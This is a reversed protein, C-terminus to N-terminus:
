PPATQKGAEERLQQPTMELIDFCSPNVREGALDLQRLVEQPMDCTWALVACQSADWAKQVDTRENFRAYGDFVARCRAYVAADLIKPREENLRRADRYVTRVATILQRPVATDFRGTAAAADGLALMLEYSGGWRPLLANALMRDFAPICDMRAAVAREFWDKATGDEDAGGMAISIMEVMPEPRDPHAKAARVLCARAAALHEGFGKWGAETVTNAWGGGRSAWALSEHALGAALDHWWASMGKAADLDRLWRELFTVDAECPETEFFESVTGFLGSVAGREDDPVSAMAEVLRSAAVDRAALVRDQAIRGRLLADYLRTAAYARRVPPYHSPELTACVQRYPEIVSNPAQNGFRVELYRVMADRSGAGVAAAVKAVVDAPPIAEGSWAREALDFAALAEVKGPADPEAQLVASLTAHNWALQAPALDKAVPADKGHPIIFVDDAAPVAACCASVLAILATRM